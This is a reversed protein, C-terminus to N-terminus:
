PVGAPMVGGVDGARVLGQSGEADPEAVDTSTMNGNGSAFGAGGTEFDESYILETSQALVPAATSLLAGLIM